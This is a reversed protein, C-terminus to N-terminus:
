NDNKQEEQLLPAVFEDQDAISMDMFEDMEQESMGEIVINFHDASIIFSSGDENELEVDINPNLRNTTYLSYYCHGIPELEVLIITWNDMM